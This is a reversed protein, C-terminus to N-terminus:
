SLSGKFRVRFATEVDALSQVRFSPCVLHTFRFYIVTVGKCGHPIAWVGQQYWLEWTNSDGRYIMLTQIYSVYM